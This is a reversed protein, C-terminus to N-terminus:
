PLGSAKIRLPLLAYRCAHGAHASSFPLLVMEIDSM